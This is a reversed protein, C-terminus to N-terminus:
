NETVSSPNRAETEEALELLRFPYDSKKRPPASTKADPETGPAAGALSVVASLAFEAAGQHVVINIRLVQVWGEHLIDRPDILSTGHGPDVKEDVLQGPVETERICLLARLVSPM